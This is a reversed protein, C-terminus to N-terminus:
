PPADGTALYMELSTHNMDFVLWTAGAVTKGVLRAYLSPGDPQPDRLPLVELFDDGGIVHRVAHKAAATHYGRAYVDDPRDPGATSGPRTARQVDSVPGPRRRVM